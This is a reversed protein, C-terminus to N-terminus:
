KFLYSLTRLEKSVLDDIEKRALNVQEILRITDINEERQTLKNEKNKFEIRVHKFTLEFMDGVSLDKLIGKSAFVSKGIQIIRPSFIRQTNVIRARIIEEETSVVRGEWNEYDRVLKSFEVPEPDVPTDTNGFAKKKLFATGKEEKKENPEELVEEETEITPENWALTNDGNKNNEEEVWYLSTNKRLWEM